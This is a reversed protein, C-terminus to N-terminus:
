TPEKAHRGIRGEHRRKLFVDNKYIIAERKLVSLVSMRFSQQFKQSKSKTPLSNAGSKKLIIATQRLTLKRWTSQFKLLYVKRLHSIKAKGGETWESETDTQPNGGGPRGCSPVARHSVSPQTIRGEMFPLTLWQSQLHSPGTRDRSGTEEQQEWESGPWPQQKQPDHVLYFLGRDTVASVKTGVSAEAGAIFPQLCSYAESHEEQKTGSGNQLKHHKWSHETDTM